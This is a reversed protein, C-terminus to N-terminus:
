SDLFRVVRYYVGDLAIRTVSAAEALTGTFLVDEVEFVRYHPAELLIAKLAPASFVYLPGNVYTPLIEPSYSSAPIYWPDYPDRHAQVNEWLFGM